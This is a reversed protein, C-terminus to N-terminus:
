VKRSSAIVLGESMLFKILVPNVIVKISVRRTSDIIEINAM